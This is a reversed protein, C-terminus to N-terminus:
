SGVQSAAVRRAARKAALDDSKDGTEVKVGDLLDAMLMRLEKATSASPHEDMSQALSIALDSQWPTTEVTSLALRVSSEVM